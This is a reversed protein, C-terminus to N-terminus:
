PALPLEVRVHGAGDPAGVGAGVARLLRLAAINDRTTEAILLSAGAGVAEALLLRLM